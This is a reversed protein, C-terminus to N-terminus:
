FSTKPFFLLLNLPKYQKQNKRNKAQIKIKLMNSVGLFLNELFFTMFELKNQENCLRYLHHRFDVKKIKKRMKQEQIKMKLM